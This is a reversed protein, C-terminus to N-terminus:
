RDIDSKARGKVPHEIRYEKVLKRKEGLSSAAKLANNLNARHGITRRVSTGDDRVIDMRVQKEFHDSLASDELNINVNESKSQVIKDSLSAFTTTAKDGFFDTRTGFRSVTRPKLKEPFVDKQSAGARALSRKSRLRGEVGLPVESDVWEDDRYPGDKVTKSKLKKYPSLMLNLIDESLREESKLYRLVLDENYGSSLGERLSKRNMASTAIYDGIISVLGTLLEVKKELNEIKDKM